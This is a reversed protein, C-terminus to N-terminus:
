FVSEVASSSSSNPSSLCESSARTTPMGPDAVPPDVAPASSPTEPPAILDAIADLCDLFAERYEPSDRVDGDRYKDKVWGLNNGAYVLAGVLRGVARARLDTM